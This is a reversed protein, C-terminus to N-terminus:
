LGKRRSGHKQVLALYLGVLLLMGIAIPIFTNDGGAAQPKTEPMSAIASASPFAPPTSTVKPIAAPAKFGSLVGPDVFKKVGVKAKFLEDPKLDVEWEAIISGEKVQSPRPFIEILGGLYDKYNLPLTYALTGAFGSAGATYSLIFSASDATFTGTVSSHEDTIATKPADPIVPTTSPSAVPTPTPSSADTAGVNGGTVSSSSSAPTPTPTAASSITVNTLNAISAYSANVTVIGAVTTNALFGSSNITANGTLNQAQFILLSFNDTVTANQNGNVDVAIAIFQQSNGVTLSPSQPTLLIQTVAGVTVSANTTNTVSSNIASTISFSSNGAATANYIASVSTNSRLVLVSANGVSFIFGGTNNVNNNIDRGTVTFSFTGGSSSVPFLPSLEARIQNGATVSANTGNTASTNSLSMFMLTANGVILANFTFATSTNSALTSVTSNSISVNFGGSNNINMNADYGTITISYTNGSATAPFLTSLALTKIPGVLVSSNTTNAASLNALSQFALTTNGALVANFTFSTPGSTTNTSVSSNSSSVNFGGSNNANGNLDRGIVIISYAGGSTTVPYLQSLEMRQIAAAVVSVNTSNTVSLNSLSYFTLTSNGALVANFSFTTSANSTLSSVSSNSTSVNFGGTNNLNGDPDVGALAFTFTGGSTNMLFLPTLNLGVIHGSPFSSFQILVTQQSGNISTTNTALVNAGRSANFTYNQSPLNTFLSSGSSNTLQASVFSWSGGTLNYVSINVSSSPKGSIGTVTVTFNHFNYDYNDNLSVALTQTSTLTANVARTVYGAKSVTFTHPTYSLNATSNGIFETIIAWPTVGSSDATLNLETSSLSSNSINVNAGPIAAATANTVNARVYWKIKLNSSNVGWGIMSKNRFSVNLLVTDINPGQEGFIEYFDYNSNPLIIDSTFSTNANNGSLWGNDDGTRVGAYGGYITNYSFANHSNNFYLRLGASSSHTQTTNITNNEFLNYASERLTLGFFKGVFVSNRVTTWYAGQLELGGVGSVNEESNFHSNSLQTYNASWLAAGNHSTATFNSFNVVNGVGSQIILAQVYYSIGSVNIIQNYSSNPRLYIANGYSSSNISLATINTNKITNNHPGSFLPSDDFTIGYGGSNSSNVVITLNDMTNNAAGIGSVYVGAPNANYGAHLIAGNRIIINSYDYIAVGYASSSTNGFKVTFGGLDLVIGNASVTYCTGTSTVNQTLQYTESANDLTTCNALLTLADSDPTKAFLFLLFFLFSATTRPRCKSM